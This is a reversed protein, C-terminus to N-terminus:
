KGRRERNINNQRAIEADYAERKEQWDAELSEEGHRSELGCEDTLIKGFYHAMKEAGSLNLHLGADYTDKSYDLGIEDTVELFNYYKLDHEAAYAEVQEEWEDYWYPVLSPAKVLVLEVDNERCLEV